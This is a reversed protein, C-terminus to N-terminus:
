FSARRIATGRASGDESRSSEKRNMWARFRAWQDLRWVRLRSPEYIYITFFTIPVVLFVWCLVDVATSSTVAYYHYDLNAYADPNLISWLVYIGRWVSFDVFYLVTYVTNDNPDTTQVMNLAEGQM